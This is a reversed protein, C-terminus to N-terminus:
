LAEDILSFTLTFLLWLVVLLAVGVVVIGISILVIQTWARTRTPSETLEAGAEDLEDETTIHTGEDRVSRYRRKRSVM